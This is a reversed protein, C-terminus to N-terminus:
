SGRPRCVNLHIQPKFAAIVPFNFLEIVHENVWRGIGTLHHVSPVEIQSDFVVAVYERVHTRALLHLYTIKVHAISSGADYIQRQFIKLGVDLWFIFLCLQRFILANRRASRM